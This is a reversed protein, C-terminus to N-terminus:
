IWQLEIVENVGLCQFKCNEKIVNMSVHWHGHFWQSPAHIRFLKQLFEGTRTIRQETGFLPKKITRILDSFLFSPADHSLVIDPKIQRYLEECEDMESQSLEENPWWNIMPTRYEYDISWAGSIYFIKLPESDNRFSWELYGFRGLYGTYQKIKEPDSHNGAIRLLHPLSNSEIPSDGFGEGHDGLGILYGDKIDRHAIKCLTRNCHTDGCLYIKGLITQM